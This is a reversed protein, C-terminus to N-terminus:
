ILHSATAPLAVLRLALFSRRPVNLVSRLARKASRGRAKLAFARMARRRCAQRCPLYPLLVGRTVKRRRITLLVLRYRLSVIAILHLIM